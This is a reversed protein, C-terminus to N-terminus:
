EYRLAEAPATRAARVAPYLTALSTLLLAAAAIVAVNRWHVESPIATIYYVDADMIQFRFTHELFPVISDVHLALALGLLVGLAVGLWGIVLGQTIFIGM